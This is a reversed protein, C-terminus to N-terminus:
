APRTVASMDAPFDVDWALGPDHIVQWALGTRLAERRHRDFSGAGYTFGFGCGAPLSIVNTGDERRDPVLAIGRVTALRSLNNALPLDSHAVILRTFGQGELQTVAAAVAGNLGRGPEPLVVAGCDRAWAAVEDDDCVVAVPLPAAAQLVHEAMSRALAARQQPSLVPALRMKAQHFAKVPVLVVANGSAPAPGTVNSVGRHYSATGILGGARGGEAGAGDATPLTLAHARDAFLPAM